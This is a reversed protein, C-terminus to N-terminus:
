SGPPLSGFKCWLRPRWGLAIGALSALQEPTLQQFFGDLSEKKRDDAIYEVQGSEANVVLTLYRHGKRASKEDIGIYRLPQPRKRARGRRVARNM